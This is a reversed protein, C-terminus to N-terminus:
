CRSRHAGEPREASEYAEVWDVLDRLKAQDDAPLSKLTRLVSAPYKEGPARDIKIGWGGAKKEAQILRGATVLRAAARDSLLTM